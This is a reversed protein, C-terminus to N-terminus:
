SNVSETLKSLRGRVSSDIVLDGARIVAGGILKDDVSTSVEVSCNLKKELAKALNSQTDDALAFASTINVQSLQEQKNKLIEFQEAIVPLLLLRKNEALLAVFNKAKEGLDSGCVEALTALQQEATLAPSTLAAKIKDDACVAALVGLSTSWGQLDNQALAYNFAAKAYPRALTTLEAM